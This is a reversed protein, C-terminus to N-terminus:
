KTAFNYLFTIGLSEKFQLIPKQKTIEVGDVIENVTFKINDDYILHINIIASISKNITFRFGTEWDIDINWRNAKNPDM